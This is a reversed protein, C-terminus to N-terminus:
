SDDGDQYFQQFLSELDPQGISLDELPREACWTVLPMVPGALTCRWVRGDQQTRELFDPPTHAHAANEDKWTLTIERQARKRLDALTTDAVLRGERMVAVRDCLREVESLTHSSFFVTAGNAARDRLIAYLQQQMLPDLGTTPEDLILLRPEHALALILGLKQRMGRSMARVRVDPELNLQEALAMGPGAIDHGRIQGFLHLASRLTLWSYLRLDGPVYGTDQKIRHGHRWADLGFVACRGESPRLLSLLLRITTTKGAGNPGLFGFVTGAAVTLNLEAVGIRQGYRRTLNEAVIISMVPQPM